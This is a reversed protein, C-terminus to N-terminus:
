TQIGGAGDGGVSADVITADSRLVEIEEDSFGFRRLIRSTAGGTEPVPGRPGPMVGDLRVGAGPLLPPEDATSGDGSPPAPQLLGRAAPHGDDVVETMSRVRGAPIGAGNLEVEWEAASRLALREAVRHRIETVQEATLGEGTRTPGALHSLDLLDLLRDLHRTKNAALMLLGDTTEFAGSAVAGSFADNGTRPPDVGLNGARVLAGANFLLGADLMSVDVRVARGTRRQELIGALLGFSLLLGGGYDLFPAGVKTPPQGEFGTALMIGSIAQVVHDFGPRGGYPGCDGFASLSGYVVTPNRASITEWGLGMADATGPAFGEVFVDAQEALRRVTEPGEPARLDVVISEKGANQTAFGLSGATQRLWEGGPPEVKIVEAGLLGLLYTAFPTALVQGLDIVTLGALPAPGDTGDGATTM